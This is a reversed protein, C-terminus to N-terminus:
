GPITMCFSTDLERGYESVAVTSANNEVLESYHMAEVRFRYSETSHILEPPRKVRIRLTQDRTLEIIAPGERAESRLISM